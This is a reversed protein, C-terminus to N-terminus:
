QFTVFVCSFDCVFSLAKGGPSWLAALYLCFLMVSMFLIWLLFMAKSRDTFFYQLDKVQKVAGVDGKNRINILVFLHKIRM